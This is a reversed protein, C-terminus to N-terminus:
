LSQRDAQHIVAMGGFGHQEWHEIFRQVTQRTQERSRPKGGPLYRTTEPDSYVQRFLDDVDHLTFRRLTLRETELVSEM